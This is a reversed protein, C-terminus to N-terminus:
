GPGHTPFMLLEGVTVHPPQEIAFLIARAVDAATLVAQFRDYFAHAKEADGHYRAEAFGTQVVGPSVEVIRLGMGEYDARLARSLGNLAFKSAVYAADNQIAFHGSTSGVNVIDGGGRALMSPALARSMRILGIVNTEVIRALDDADCDDFRERGGADHGANNVLVAVDRWDEPLAAPLAAVAAADAIDLPFPLFAPGLRDAMAQLTARTRAVGVVRGGRGVIAEAVAAGIGSSAGTVLATARGTLRGIEAM